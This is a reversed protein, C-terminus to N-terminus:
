NNISMYIIMAIQFILLAMMFTFHYAFACKLKSFIAFTNESASQTVQVEVRKLRGVFLTILIITVTKSLQSLPVLYM